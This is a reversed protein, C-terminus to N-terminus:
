IKKTQFIILKSCYLYCKISLKNIKFNHLKLPFSSIIIDFGTYINKKSFFM